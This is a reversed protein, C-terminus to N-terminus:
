MSMKKSLFTDCFEQYRGPDMQLIKTKIDTVKSM